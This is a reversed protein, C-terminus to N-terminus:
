GEGSGVIRHVSVVDSMKVDFTKAPNFQELVLKSATQRVFRKLLASPPDGDTKPRLQVLVYSGATVPRGPHVYLLEGPHYRPEMSMGYVYIAYAQPVGALNAPRPVYDVVDGNWPSQGDAGGEASGLVPLRDSGVRRHTAAAHARPTRVRPVGPANDNVSNKALLRINDKVADELHERLDGQKVGLLPALAERADEPLIVPVGRELYQQLYAHNRGMALSADKMSLRKAALKERILERVSM